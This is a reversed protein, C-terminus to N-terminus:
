IAEKNTEGHATKKSRYGDHRLVKPTSYAIKINPLTAKGSNDVGLSRLLLPAGCFLAKKGYRM